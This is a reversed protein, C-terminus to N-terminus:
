KSIRYYTTEEQKRALKVGGNQVDAGYKGSCSRSCFPGALKKARNNVQNKSLAFINDCWVCAELQEERRKADEKVHTVRDIVRLNSIVDNTVDRDIHDVTELDPDLQRGLHQEMLFKPYSVTRRSGDEFVIIVHKRNDEKRTYPGYVKM